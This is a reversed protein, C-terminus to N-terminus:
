ADFPGHTEYWADRAWGDVLALASQWAEDRPAPGSRLCLLEGNSDRAELSIAVFDPEDDIEWIELRLQIGFPQILPPQVVSTEGKPFKPIQLQEM